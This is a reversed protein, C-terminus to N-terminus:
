KLEKRGERRQRGTLFAASTAGQRDHAPMGRQRNQRLVGCGGTDDAESGDGSGLDRRASAGLDCDARPSEPSSDAHRHIWPSVYESDEDPDTLGLKIDAVAALDANAHTRDHAAGDAQTDPEAVPLTARCADNYRALRGFLASPLDLARASFSDSLIREYAEGEDATLGRASVCDEVALPRCRLRRGDASDNENGAM